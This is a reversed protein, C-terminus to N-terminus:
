NSFMPKEKPRVRTQGDVMAFYKESLNIIVTINQLYNTIVITNKRM